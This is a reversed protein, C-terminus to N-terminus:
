VSATTKEVLNALKVDRKTLRGCIHSTLPRHVKSYVNFWELYHHMKQNFNRFSFEKNIADRESLESWGAAKLDLLFTSGGLKGLYYLTRVCKLEIGSGVVITM